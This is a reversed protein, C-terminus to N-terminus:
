RPIEQNDTLVAYSTAMFGSGNFGISCAHFDPRYKGPCFGDNPADAM